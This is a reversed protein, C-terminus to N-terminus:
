SIHLKLSIRLQKQQFCKHYYPSKFFNNEIWPM